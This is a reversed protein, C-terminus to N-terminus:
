NLTLAIAAIDDHKKFRPYHRCEPDSNEKQRIQEQVFALGGQLYLDVIWQFDHGEDPNESPPLLGDTFILMHKIGNLACRGNELFSLARVDGNMVGYELNMQQRVVEVYPRLAKHPDPNNQSFLTKLQKLTQSDHNHYHTLLRYRGSEDIALIQSDGIQVWDLFHEEVRLVAASTSWCSLKNEPEVRENLMASRLKDNARQSLRVLSADNKAFESAVLYSAWWAGTQGDYLKPVLSSAGDFVGFLDGSCILQDESPRYGGAQFAREIKCIYHTM